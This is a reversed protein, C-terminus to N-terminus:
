HIIPNDRRANGMRRCHRPWPEHNSDRGAAAQGTGGAGATRPSFLWKAGCWPLASSSAVNMRFEPVSHSPTNAPWARKGIRHPRTAM